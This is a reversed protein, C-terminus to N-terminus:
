AYHKRRLLAPTNNTSTGPTFNFSASSANSLLRQVRIDIMEGEEEEGDGPGGERGRGGHSSQFYVPEVEEDEVAHARSTASGAVDDEVDHFSGFSMSRFSHLTRFSSASSSSSTQRATRGAVAVAPPDAAAISVHPPSGRQQTEEREDSSSSSGDDSSLEDGSESNSSDGDDSNSTKKQLQDREYHGREKKRSKDDMRKSNTKDKKMKKSSSKKVNNVIQANTNHDARPTADQHASSSLMPARLLVTATDADSAGYPAPSMLEIGKSQQQQQHLLQQQQQQQEYLEDRARLEEEERQLQQRRQQDVHNRYCAYAIGLVVLALVVVFIVIANLGSSEVNLWLLLLGGLLFPEFFRLLLRQLELPIQALVVLLVTRLASAQRRWYGPSPSQNMASFPQVASRQRHNVSGHHSMSSSSTIQPYYLSGAPWITHYRLVMNAEMASWWASTTTAASSTSAEAEALPRSVFFYSPVDFARATVSPHQANNITTRIVEKALSQLLRQGRRVEAYALSPLLVDIVLVELPQFFLVETAVQAICALLYAAQWAVGQQVGRLLVYYLSFGNMGLIVAAALFQYVMLYTDNNPDNSDEDEFTQVPTFDKELTLVFFKAAATEPGVLDILLTHLLSMAREHFTTHTAYRQLLLHSQKHTRQLAGRLKRFTQQTKRDDASVASRQHSLFTEIDSPPPLFASWAQQLASFTPLDHGGDGMSGVMPSSATGPASGTLAVHQAFRVYDQLFARLREDVWEEMAPKSVTHSYQVTPAPQYSNRHQVSSRQGADVGNTGNDNSALKTFVQMLDRRANKVELPAQMLLVDDSLLSNRGVFFLSFTRYMRQVLTPKPSPRPHVTSANATPSVAEGHNQVPASEIVPVISFVAARGNKNRRGTSAIM